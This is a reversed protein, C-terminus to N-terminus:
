KGAQHDHALGLKPRAKIKPNPRKTQTLNIDATFNHKRWIEM